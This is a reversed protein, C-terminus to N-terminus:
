LWSWEVLFLGDLAEGRAKGREDKIFETWHTSTTWGRSKLNNRPLNRGDISQLRRNFGDLIRSKNPRNHRWSEILASQRGVLVRGVQRRNELIRGVRLDPPHPWAFFLAVALLVDVGLAVSIVKVLAQMVDMRPM